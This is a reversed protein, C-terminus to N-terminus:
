RVAKSTRGTDAASAVERRGLPRSMVLATEGNDVYYNEQTGQEEFGLKKYLTRAARNSVRVQLKIKERLGRQEAILKQVLATAAGQRRATPEVALTTVNVTSAKLWAALHGVVRCNNEAVLLRRRGRNLLQRYFVDSDWPEEFSAKEIKVADSIDSIEM